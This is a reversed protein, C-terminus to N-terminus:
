DSIDEYDVAVDVWEWLGGAVIEVYFGRNNETFAENIRRIANYFRVGPVTTVLGGFNITEGTINQRGNERLRFLKVALSTATDTSKASIILRRIKFNERGNKLGVAQSVDVRTADMNLTTITVNGSFIKRTINLDPQNKSFQIFETDTEREGTAPDVVVGSVRLGGQIDNGQKTRIAINSDGNEFTIPTSPNLVGNNVLREFGGFMHITQGDVAEARSTWSKLFRKASPINDVLPERSLHTIGSGEWQVFGTEEQTGSPLTPLGYRRVNGKIFEFGDVLDLIGSAIAREKDLEIHDVVDDITPNDAFVGQYSIGTQDTGSTAIAEDSVVAAVVFTNVM